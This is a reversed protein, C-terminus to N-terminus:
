RTLIYKKYQQSSPKWQIEDIENAIYWSILFNVQIGQLFAEPSFPQNMDDFPSHYMKKEWVKFEKAGSIKPDNANLGGMVFLAPIGAKVFSFHDSREFFEIEASSTSDIGLNLASAAFDVALSLNSMRYGMPIIDKALFIGGPMDLSMDAKIKERPVTPKQAFYHSGLLGKEEGTVWIFLISRAPAEPLQKYAEAISLLTASGSANDWAGNYISDRKRSKGIGLHDLHASLILYEKSLEPDSGPLLAVINKCNVSKEDSTYQVELTSKLAFPSFTGKEMNKHTEKLNLGNQKFIKEVFDKKAYALIGAKSDLMPNSLDAERYDFYPQTFFGHLAKFIVNQLIGMNTFFIIGSVGKKELVKLRELPNIFSQYKKKDLNDPVGLSIIVTKGKIDLGAFDNIGLEPIELGFGAFIIDERLNVKPSKNNPFISIDSGYKGTLLNDGNNLRFSLSEGDIQRTIFNIKQFFSNDQTAPKLGISEIESVVYDAAMQYGISGTERGAFSDSALIGMHEFFSNTNLSKAINVAGGPDNQPFCNLSVAIGSLILVSTIKM